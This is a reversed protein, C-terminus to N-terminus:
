AASEWPRPLCLVARRDRRRLSASLWRELQEAEDAGLQVQGLPSHLVLGGDIKLGIPPTTRVGLSGDYEPRVTVPLYTRLDEFQKVSGRIIAPSDSVSHAIWVEGDSRRYTAGRVPPPRNDGHVIWRRLQAVATALSHSDARSSRAIGAQLAQVDPPEIRFIGHRSGAYGGDRAVSELNSYLHMDALGASQGYGCLNVAPQIDAVQWVFTTDASPSYDGVARRPLVGPLASSM